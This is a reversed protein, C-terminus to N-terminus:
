LNLHLFFSKLSYGDMMEGKRIMDWVEKEAFWQVASIEDLEHTGAKQLIKCRV